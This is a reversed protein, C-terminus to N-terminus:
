RQECPVLESRLRPLRFVPNARRRSRDANRDRAPRADRRFGPQGAATQLAFLSATSRDGHRNEEQPLSDEAYVPRWRQLSRENGTHLLAEVIARGCGATSSDVGDDGRLRPRGTRGLLAILTRSGTGAMARFQPAGTNRRLRTAPEATCPRAGTGPRGHSAPCTWVADDTASFTAPILVHM